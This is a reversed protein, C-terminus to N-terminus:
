ASIIRFAPNKRCPASRIGNNVLASGPPYLFPSLFHAGGRRTLSTFHTPRCFYSPCRNDPLCREVWPDCARSTPGMSAQRNRGSPRLSVDTGVFAALSVCVIFPPFGAIDPKLTTSPNHIKKSAGVSELWDDKASCFGVARVLIRHIEM